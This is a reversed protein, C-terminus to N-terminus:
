RTPREVLTYQAFLDKELDMAQKGRDWGLAHAMKRVADSDDRDFVIIRFGVSEWLSTPFPCRGDSWPKYPKGPPSPAPSINYIMVKGGPALAAYLAKVFDSDEVGLQILMRKDVPQAPHLYGNKLTNKSIILDFGGKVAEKADREAPWRGHVLTIRGDRGEPNKVVGQDSPESYLERLFPDVDVGVVDAGLNAMLRLQGVTGYGFDLVRKGSLSKLGSEGILDLPRAFALPTGYKTTYYVSEGIEVPVLANRQEKSLRGMGSKSYYKRTTPDRYLTRPAIKPLRPTAGLFTKALDSRLLPRVAEAEQHLLAVGVLPSPQTTTQSTSDDAYATVTAGVWVAFLAVIKM